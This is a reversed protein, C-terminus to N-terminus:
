CAINSWGTLIGPDLTVFVIGVIVKFRYHMIVLINIIERFIISSVM